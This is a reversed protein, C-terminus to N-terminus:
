PQGGLITHESAYGPQVSLSPSRQSASLTVVRGIPLQESGRASGDYDYGTFNVSWGPSPPVAALSAFQGSTWFATGSEDARAASIGLALMTVFGAQWRVTQPHSSRRRHLSSEKSLPECGFTPHQACTTRRLNREADALLATKSAPAM